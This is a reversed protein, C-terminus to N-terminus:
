ALFDECIELVADEVIGNMKIQKGSSLYIDFRENYRKKVAEANLALPRDSTPVIQELPRDLFYIRGNQRLRFVNEGKLVAGGGTAVVLGCKASIELIVESELERFHQEGKQRFIESIDGHREKIIDDTDVFERGLKRALARGVTTKGSGPMGVLVINEKGKLMDEFIGDIREKPIEKDIFKECAHAAQAVLMYLGGEAPLKRDLAKQVLESRLPNYVADIVGSLKPFKDIDLAAGVTNPFMGAPTTNIIIDADCHCELATDYSILGDKKTRSLRYIEGAGLSKAVAFATKSTGGSGAILVKKCSLDIGNKLILAKMGSFDTNYGFLKGEKNVVTNVAGIARATDSIFDLYPIVDQKYPITVNIATFDRKKIFEPFDEKSVETLRYDYDALKSHIEASFSHGLKEGICGYKMHMKGM